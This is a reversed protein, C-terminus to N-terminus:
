RRSGAPASRRGRSRADGPPAEHLALNQQALEATASDPPALAVAREWDSRAGAAEGAAQRLIGRELLAEASDPALALAQEVARRAEAPRDLHRLAAARYVLPEARDPALALAHDLDELAEAYRGMSGLAVARDLVLDPDDPTLTLAMTAAAYARGTQGLLMWAQGAQAYIAARAAASGGEVTRALRELREAGRETEGMGLLALAACHRAGEGGGAAGWAEAFSRAAEPDRRLLGLCREYEPGEALRPPDSAAQAAAAPEPAVTGGAAALLGAAVAGLLTSRAPKV